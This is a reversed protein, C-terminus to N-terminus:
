SHLRQEVTALHKEIEGVLEIIEERNPNERDAYNRINELRSVLGRRVESLALHITEQRAVGTFGGSRVTHKMEEDLNIRCKALESQTDALDQKLQAERRESELRLNSEEDREARISNLQTWLSNTESRLSQSLEATANIAYVAEVFSKSMELRSPIRAELLRTIWRTDEPQVGGNKWQGSSQLNQWHAFGNALALVGEVLHQRKDRCQFLCYLLWLHRGAAFFANWAWLTELNRLEQAVWKGVQIPNPLLALNPSEAGRSLLPTMPEELWRYKAGDKVDKLWMLCSFAIVQPQPSGQIRNIFEVRNVEPTSNELERLAKLCDKWNQFLATPDSHPPHQQPIQNDM